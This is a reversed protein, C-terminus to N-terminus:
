RPNEQGTAPRIYYAPETGIHVSLPRLTVARISASTLDLEVPYGLQRAAWLTLSGAPEDRPADLLPCGYGPAGSRYAAADQLEWSGCGTSTVYGPVWHLVHTPGAATDAEPVTHPRTFKM